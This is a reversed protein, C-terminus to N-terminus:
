KFDHIRNSTKGLLIWGEHVKKFSVLGRADGIHITIVEETKGSADNM